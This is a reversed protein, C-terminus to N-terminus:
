SLERIHNLYSNNLPILTLFFTYVNWIQLFGLHKFIPSWTSKYRYSLIFNAPDCLCYAFTRCFNSFTTLFNNRFTKFKGCFNERQWNIVVEHKRAEHAYASLVDCLCRETTPCACMDYLCARFFPQVEVVSHAPKFVDGQSPYLLKLFFIHPLRINPSSVLCFQSKPVNHM